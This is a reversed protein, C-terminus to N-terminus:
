VEIVPATEWVCANAQAAEGADQGCIAEELDAYSADIAQELVVCLEGNVEERPVVYWEVSVVEEWQELQGHWTVLELEDVKRVLIEGACAIM